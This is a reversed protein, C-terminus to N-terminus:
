DAGCSKTCRVRRRAKAAHSALIAASQRIRQVTVNPSAECGLLRGRVRDESKTNPLIKKQNLKEAERSGPWSGV